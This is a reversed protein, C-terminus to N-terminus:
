KKQYIYFGSNNYLKVFKKNEELMKSIIEYDAFKEFLNKTFIIVTYTDLIKKMSIIFKTKSIPTNLIISGGIYYFVDGNIVEMNLFDKNILKIKDKFTFLNIFQQSIDIIDKSFDIGIVKNCGLYVLLPLNRGLGSCAHVAIKNKLWGQKKAEAIFDNLNADLVESQDENFGPKIYNDDLGYEDFLFDYFKYLQVGQRNNIEKAKKNIATILEPLDEKCINDRLFQKVKEYATYTM